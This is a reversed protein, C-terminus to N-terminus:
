ELFINCHPFRGSALEGFALLFKPHRTLDMKYEGTQRTPVQFRETKKKNNVLVVSKEQKYVQLIGVGDSASSRPGIQRM